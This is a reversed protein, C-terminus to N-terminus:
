LEDIFSELDNPLLKDNTFLNQLYIEYSTNLGEKCLKEFILMAVPNKKMFLVKLTQVIEEHSVNCLKEIAYYQIAQNLEDDKSLYYKKTIMENYCEKLYPNKKVYSLYQKIVKQSLFGNLCDYIIMQILYNVNMNEFYNLVYINNLSSLKQSNIFFSIYITFSEINDVNKIQKIMKFTDSIQKEQITDEYDKIYTEILPLINKAYYSEFNIKKLAKLNNVIAEEFGNRLMNFICAFENKEEIINEIKKSVVEIVPEINEFTKILDDLTYTSLQEKTLYYALLKCLIKYDISLPELENKLLKKIKQYEKIMEKPSFINNYDSSLIDILAISDMAFSPKLKIGTGM